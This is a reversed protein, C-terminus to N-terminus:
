KLLEVNSAVKGAPNFLTSTIGNRFLFVSVIKFVITWYANKRIQRAEVILYIFAEIM